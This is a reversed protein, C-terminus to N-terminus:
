QLNGISITSASVAAHTLGITPVGQLLDRGPTKLLFDTPAVWGSALTLTPPPPRVMQRRLLLFGVLAIAAVAAAPALRSWLSPRRSEGVVFAPAGSSEESRLRQFSARFDDDHQDSM